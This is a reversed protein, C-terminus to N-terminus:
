AEFGAIAGQMNYIYSYNAVPRGFSAWTLSALILGFVNSFFSAPMWANLQQGSSTAAKISNTNLWSSELPYFPEQNLWGDKHPSWAQCVRSLAAGGRHSAVVHQLMRRNTHCCQLPKERSFKYNVLVQSLGAVLFSLFLHMFDHLKGM